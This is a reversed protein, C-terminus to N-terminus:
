KAGASRLAAAVAGTPLPGDALVRDIDRADRAIGDFRARQADILAVLEAQAELQSQQWPLVRTSAARERLRLLDAAVVAASDEVVGRLGDRVDEPVDASWILPTAYVVMGQVAREGSASRAASEDFTTVLQANASSRVSDSWWLFGAVVLALVGLVAAVVYPARRRDPASASLYELTVTDSM